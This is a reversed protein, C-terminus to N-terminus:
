LSVKTSEGLWRVFLQSLGVIGIAAELEIGGDREFGFLQSATHAQPLVVESDPAFVVFPTPIKHESGNNLIRTMDTAHAYEGNSAHLTSTNKYYSIASNFEDPNSLLHLLLHHKQHVNGTCGEFFPVSSTSQQSQSM